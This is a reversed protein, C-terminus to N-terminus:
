ARVPPLPFPLIGAPSLGRMPEVGDVEDKGGEFSTVLISCTKV